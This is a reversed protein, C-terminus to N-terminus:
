QLNLKNLRNISIEFESVKFTNGLYYFKNDLTFKRATLQFHVGSPAPASVPANTVVVPQQCVTKQTLVAKFVSM